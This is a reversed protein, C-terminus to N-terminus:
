SAPRGTKSRKGGNAFGGLVGGVLGPVATAIILFLAALGLSLGFFGTVLTGLVTLIVTVIVAGLTTALAGHIADSVIGRNNMYGAVGGAILGALGTGIVPLTADTFPLGLGNVLGIIVGTVFGYLVARWYVM